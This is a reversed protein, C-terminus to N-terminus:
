SVPTSKNEVFATVYLAPERRFKPVIRLKIQGLITVRL